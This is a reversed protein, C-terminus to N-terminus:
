IQCSTRVLGIPPIQKETCREDILARAVPNMDGIFPSKCILLIMVPAKM